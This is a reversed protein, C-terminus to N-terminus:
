EFGEKMDKPLIPFLNQQGLLHVIIVQRVYESVPLYKNEAQKILDSKMRAPLFIKTAAIQKEKKPLPVPPPPSESNKPNRWAKFRAAFGKDRDDSVLSFDVGNMNSDPDSFYHQNREVYGLFDYRGYLHVFIIQRIFDSKTTNLFNSIEDLKQEISEPIWVKLTDTCSFVEGYDRGTMAIQHAKEAIQKETIPAQRNRSRKFFFLVAGLLHLNIRLKNVNVCPMNSDYRDTIDIGNYFLKFFQTSKRLPASRIRSGRPRFPPM